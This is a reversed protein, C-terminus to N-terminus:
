AQNEADKAEDKLEDKERKAPKVKQQKVEVAKGNLVLWLGLVESVDYEEGKELVSVPIGEHALVASVDRGQFVELMKVRM